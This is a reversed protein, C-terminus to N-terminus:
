METEIEDRWDEKECVYIEREREGSERERVCVSKLM